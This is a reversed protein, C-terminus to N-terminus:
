GPECVLKSASCDLRWVVGEAEFRYDVTCQFAARMLTDLVTTGFGQRSPPIVRPGDSEVWSLALRSEDAMPAPALEWTITVRGKAGSLAGYKTANTALEHLAMALTQAAQANIAVPPGALAVREDGIEGLHAVQSRVLDALLVDKWSQGLLLDQAVAIACLRHEFDRLFTEPTRAATLRAVSQVLSLLNKCRHHLELTLLSLQEEQRRRETVDVSTGIHGLFEGDEGFHPNAWSEMWRWEGDARRVQVEAHFPRRARVCAAFEAAYAAGSEPEILTQWRDSRMEERTVGFYDCFTQNVFEQQGTADHTWVNLPLNDAMARFRAESARLREEMQRRETIDLVTGTVLAVTGSGSDIPGIAEGRDMVWRTSGDPRSIRLELEFPGIRHQIAVMEALVRDRDEPHVTGLVMAMPVPGHTSTGLISDMEPSWRARQRRPDFDYVGFVAASAARRLRAESEALAVEVVKQETIDQVTGVLRVATRGEFTVDGKAHVWRVMRTGRHIVRYVAEYHAPGDPDLAADVAAATAALDDPHIGGAFTAYTIPEDASVGWIARITMDWGITGTRPDFDHVGLRGARLAALLRETDIDPRNAATRQDTVDVNFGRLVTVVGQPDREIVGRDHIVRVTGDPRVIRFEHAYTDGSGMFAATEAEVRTRDEPHVLATFGGETPPAQDLGYIRVLEPAWVVRDDAVYWEYTGVGPFRDLSLTAEKFELPM